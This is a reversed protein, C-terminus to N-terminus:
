QSDPAQAYADWEFRIDDALLEIDECKDSLVSLTLARRGGVPARESAGFLMRANLLHRRWDERPVERAPCETFFPPIPRLDVHATGTAARIEPNVLTLWMEPVAMATGHPNAPCEASARAGELRWRIDPGDAQTERIEAFYLDFMGIDNSAYRM